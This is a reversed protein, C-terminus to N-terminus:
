SLMRVANDVALHAYAQPYDFFEKAMMAYHASASQELM